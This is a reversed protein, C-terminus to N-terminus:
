RKTLTTTILFGVNRDLWRHLWKPIKFPLTRAPFFILFSDNVIFYPELMAIYQERSYAKGVPNEAGDYLRVIEDVNDQRFIEERGRGRLMAGAMALLRGVGSLLKWNRLIINKYYVSIVATGGPRLVRAIEKVCTATNPTHHIVGICNM